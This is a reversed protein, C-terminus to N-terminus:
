PALTPTAIPTPTPTPSPTEWPVNVGIHVEGSEAERGAGNRARFKLTYRGNAFFMTTRYPRDRLRDRIVGDVIIEVWETPVDSFVEVDLPVDNTQLMERDRPSNVRVVLEEADSCLETPPHFRADGQTAIWEDIGRQWAERAEAPLIDPSRLIFYEKEEYNGNAIQAQTALKGSSRCVRLKRHIPDEGTPLTGDIIFETRQPFGDHVPYGSVADVEKLSVGVPLPFPPDPFSRLIELFIRRWIPAAGSVGSAVERMPSNDNNGVWVGVVATGHTWGVTWNDRRDNTTGTKVAINRGAINILSNPGFTLLRASNDSLISNVLFAVHQSVVVTGKRPKQEFLVKGNREKVELLAVPEVRRGGNAFASYATVMDLLRVEGGGLTVSLGFRRLNEDSPALTTFGLNHALTLMDRLGVMQLIKVAPVNISSGLATRLSLPGHHEGDYNVPIYPEEATRGPFGTRVDMVMTAPTYGKAFATAYTAPKIASGPQRLSLVVNVQGDYDEAFFDKSGVMALIEGNGPDMVVAAGNGINVGEVKAIEEAVIRQAKEQLELDLTTKVVLGGQEVVRDGYLESLLERVFIVFHPAKIDTDKQAFPISPLQSVAEQELAKTIYGDERMRRLVEATRTIYAQPNSGFPSFATPRQPLGALIASEVLTLEAVPKEFYVDAAAEVGWATGGFPAENLYMTLIEDKSFRREIQVALIFEKIKRPLTREPTLLVNKVLQQTLTSGGQLRQYVVINRIARLIGRPDFGEHKYFDKDEIAIVAQRLHLPVDELQVPIRKQEGYVDWLERGSRDLIRTAFGERRIVRDPRPLNRAYWAFLLAAITMGGTLVFFFTIALTRILRARLPTDYGLRAFRIKRIRRTWERRWPLRGVMDENYRTLCSHDFM